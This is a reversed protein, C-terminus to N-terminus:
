QAILTDQFEQWDQTVDVADISDEYGSKSTTITYTGTPLGGIYTQGPATCASTFEIAIDHLSPTVTQNSTRLVAQYRLYRKGSLSSPTTTGSATFYSTSKGDPGVYNWTANDNNAAIQFKLTTNTPQSTPNWTFTSLTSTTTGLDFTKSTLVQDSSSAYKGNIQSLTIIGPTTTNIYTTISTYAGSTSWDTQDIFARGTVRTIDVNPGTLRVSAGSLPSEDEDSISVLLAPANKPEMIWTHTSSSAPDVIVPMFPVTGAIDYTTSRNYLDYTDWEQSTNSFIGSSNTTLLADYKYIDPDYGILKSGVQQYPIQPVAACYKDLTKFTFSGLQDIIFSLKTTKQELVSADPQLPNPNASDGVAYTRDSSYGNKTVVIHYGASSTAIDVFDLSGSVNTSDTISISPNVLSNTIALTAGSVPNGSADIVNLFLSGNRTARELGIPAITTVMHAPVFRKCTDCTVYVDVLKYDGPIADRPTSSISGDFVDDVDRVTTTVTYEASGLAVTKTAILSGPPAGGSIGVDPYPINRIMEFENRLVTLAADNSQVAIIIDLINSYAFFISTAVISFIGMAILTELLTFGRVRQFSSTM